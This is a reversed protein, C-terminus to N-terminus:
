SRARGGSETLQGLRELLKVMGWTDQHCYRLLDRRLRGRTEPGMEDRRFLLQVLELSATQGDAIALGDYSLDPVLAPLVRKLSFSGGFDPHYVYGRVVPLLDVLRDAIERLAEKRLPVAEALQELCSREFQANYAVVVRAGQCATVLHEALAPRPDGPGDALWEHHSVSGDVSVMHCNFQVPVADYPHCGNWAPVALGVTEFDLFAIPSVFAGLAQTLGPEVILQVTQVARRQRDAIAGLAVDDPLDHITHYGEQDLELARRRMAYLTSVHHPPLEPWCRETFPCEYPASCHAGVAVRPLAGALMATQAAIDRPVGSLLAEVADTVDERVFLNTLDPYTCARNLHMVEMRRVDLGIRRLVHTQIAVDALHHGKVSTTSKVEVLCHGSGRRELIDVSVFVNDARFAAEYIARSRQRLAEETAALREAFANYPLDILIGGPVYTRALEGVRAGQDMVASERDDWQLEPAAPEHVMWWLLKHCQRGAMVRSKSLGVPRLIDGTTM